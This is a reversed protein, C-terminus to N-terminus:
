RDRELDCSIKPNQVLAQIKGEFEEMEGFAELPNEWGEAFFVLLVKLKQPNARYLVWQGKRTDIVLGAEKLINLHRSIAPQSVHFLEELECVCFSNICLILFLRLRIEQGLAAFVKELNALTQEVEKGGNKGYIYLL